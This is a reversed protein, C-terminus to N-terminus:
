ETKQKTEENGNYIEMEEDEDEDDTIWSLCNSTQKTNDSDDESEDELDIEELEDEEEINHLEVLLTDMEIEEIDSSEESVVGRTNIELILSGHVTCIQFMGEQFIVKIAHDFVFVNGGRTMEGMSILKMYLDQENKRQENILEISIISIVGTDVDYENGENDKYVGDGYATEGIVICGLENRFVGAEYETIAWSEKYINSEGLPFCIDGIFYSGQPLIIAQQFTKLPLFVNNTFPLSCM